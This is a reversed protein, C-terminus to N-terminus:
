EAVAGSAQLMNQICRMHLEALRACTQKIEDRTPHPGQPSADAVAPKAAGPTAVHIRRLRAGRVDEFENQTETYLQPRRAANM